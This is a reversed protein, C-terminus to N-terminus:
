GAAPRGLLKRILDFPFGAPLDTIAPAPLIAFAEEGPRVLDFQERAIREIEADTDLATVRASLADNQERLVDLQHQTRETEARQAMYTRTPFVFVFLAAVLLGTVLIPWIARRVRPIRRPSREQREDVEDFDEWPEPHMRQRLGPDIIREPDVVPMPRSTPHRHRAAHQEGAALHRRERRGLKTDPSIVLLGNLASTETAAGDDRPGGLLPDVPDHGRPPSM